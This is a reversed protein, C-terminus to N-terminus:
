TGKLYLYNQDPLDPQTALVSMIHQKTVLSTLVIADKLLSRIAPIVFPVSLASSSAIKLGNTMQRITLTAASEGWLCAHLKIKKKRIVM